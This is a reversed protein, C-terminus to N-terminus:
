FNERSRGVILRADLDVDELAFALKRPIVLGDALEM